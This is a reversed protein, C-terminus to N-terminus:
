WTMGWASWMRPVSCSVRQRPRLLDHSLMSRCHLLAACLRSGRVQEAIDGREHALAAVYRPDTDRAGLRRSAARVDGGHDEADVAEGSRAEAEAAGLAARENVAEDGSSAGAAAARHRKSPRGESPAESDCDNSGAADGAAPRRKEAKRRAEAAPAATAPAAHDPDAASGGACGSARVLGQVKDFNVSASCCYFIYHTPFYCCETGLLVAVSLCCAGGADPGNGADDPYSASDFTSPAHLGDSMSMDDEGAMCRRLGNAAPDGGDRAHEGLLWMSASAHQEVYHALAAGAAAAAAADRAQAAFSSLPAAECEEAPHPPAAAADGEARGRQAVRTADQTAQATAAAAAAGVAPAAAPHARAARSETPWAAALRTPRKRVAKRAAERSAM